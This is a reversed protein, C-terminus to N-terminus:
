MKDVKKLKGLLDKSEKLLLASGVILARKPGSKLVTKLTNELNPDKHIKDESLGKLQKYIQDLESIELSAKASDPSVLNYNTLYLNETIPSLIKLIQTADKTKAASFV